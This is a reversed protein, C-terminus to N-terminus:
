KKENISENKNGNCWLEFLEQRIQSLPKEKCSMLYNGDQILTIIARLMPVQDTNDKLAMNFVFHAEISEELDGMNQFRVPKKLRLVCIAPTIVHEADTHPIAVAVETPLGTPFKKEREICATLFSDKVYNNKHLEQYTKNLAEEWTEPNGEIVLIDEIM